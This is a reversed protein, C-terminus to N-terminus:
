SRGEGWGGRVCGRVGLISVRGGGRGRGRQRGSRGSFCWIRAVVAGGRRSGFGKRVGEGQKEGGVGDLGVRGRGWDGVGTWTLVRLGQCGVIRYKAVGRAQVRGGGCGDVQLVSYCLLDHGRILLANGRREGDWVGGGTDGEFCDAVGGCGGRGTARTIASCLLEGVGVANRQNGVMAIGRGGPGVVGVRPGGVVTQYAIERGYAM